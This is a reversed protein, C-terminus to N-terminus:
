FSWNFFVLFIWFFWSFFCAAARGDTLSSDIGSPGARLSTRSGRLRKPLFIMSPNYSSYKTEYIIALQITNEDTM